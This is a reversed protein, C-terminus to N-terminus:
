NRANTKRIKCRKPVCTPRLSTTATAAATTTATTTAAPSRLLEVEVLESLLEDLLHLHLHLGLELDEEIRMRRTLTLNLRRLRWGMLLHLSRRRELGM